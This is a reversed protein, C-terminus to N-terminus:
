MFRILSKIYITLKIMGLLKMSEPKLEKDYFLIIKDNGFYYDNNFHENPVFYKLDTKYVSRRSVIYTASKIAEYTKKYYKRDDSNGAFAIIWAIFCFLFVFSSIAITLQLGIGM